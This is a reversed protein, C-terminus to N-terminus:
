RRKAGTPARRSRRGRRGRHGPGSPAAARARRREARRRAALDRRRLARRSARGGRRLRGAMADGEDGLVALGFAQHQRHRDGVFRADGREAPERASREDVSPRALAAISAAIARLQLDLDALGVLRDRGQGAAVLLLDDDGLPQHGVRADDQEVIRGAADVDAGLLLEVAQHALEGVRASRDQEVRM